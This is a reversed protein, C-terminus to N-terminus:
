QKVDTLITGCRYYASVFTFSVAEGDASMSNDREHVPTIVQYDGFRDLIFVCVLKTAHATCSATIFCSLM